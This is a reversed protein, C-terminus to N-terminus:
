YSVLIITKLTYQKQREQAQELTDFTSHYVCCEETLDISYRVYKELSFLSYKEKM